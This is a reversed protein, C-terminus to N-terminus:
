AFPFQRKEAVSDRNYDPEAGRPGPSLLCFDYIKQLKTKVNGWGEGKWFPRMQRIQNLLVPIVAIKLDAM